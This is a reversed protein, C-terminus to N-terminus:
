AGPAGMCFTGHLCSKSHCVSLASLWGPRARVAAGHTRHTRTRIERIARQLRVKQLKKMGVADLDEDELLQLDSLKGPRVGLDAIMKDYYEQLEIKALLAFVPDAESDIATSECNCTNGM